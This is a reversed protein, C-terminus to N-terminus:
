KSKNKRHLESVKATAAQYIDEASRGSLIELAQDINDVHYITFTNNRFAEMLKKDYQARLVLEEVNFSPIIVGQQGNLGLREALDLAGRVKSYVHGIAGINGESSYIAGTMAISQSIPTQSLSSLLAVLSAASASNGSSEDIEQPFFLDLPVNPDVGMKKRLVQLAMEWGKRMTSDAHKVRDEVMRTKYKGQPLLTTEITSVGGYEIGDEGCVLLSQVKGIAEGTLRVLGERALTDTYIQAKISQHDRQQDIYHAVVEPTTEKLGTSRALHASGEVADLFASLNSSIFGSKFAANETQHVAAYQILAVLAPETFPPFKSQKTRRAKDNLDGIVTKARRALKLRNEPTNMMQESLHVRTFKARFSSFVDDSDLENEGNSSVIFVTSFDAKLPPTIEEVGVDDGVRRTLQHTRTEMAKDLAHLHSINEAPTTDILRSGNYIVLIGGNAELLSGPLLRQHPAKVGSDISGIFEGILERPNNGALAVFPHESYDSERKIIFPEYYYVVAKKDEPDVTIGRLQIKRYINELTTVVSRKGKFRDKADWKKIILNIESYYTNIRDIRAKASRRHYEREMELKITKYKGVNERLIKKATESDLPTLAEEKRTTVLRLDDIPSFKATGIRNKRKVKPVLSYGYYTTDLRKKLEGNYKDLLREQLVALHDEGEEVQVHDKKIIDTLSKLDKGLEAGYGAPLSLVHWAPDENEDFFLVQDTQAIHRRALAADVILEDISPILADTRSLRSMKKKANLEGTPLRLNQNISAWIDRIMEAQQHNEEAVLLINKERALSELILRLPGDQGIVMDIGHLKQLSDYSVEGISYRLSLERLQSDLDIRPPHTLM